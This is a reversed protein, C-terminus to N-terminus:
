KIMELVDQADQKCSAEWDESFGSAKAYSKM